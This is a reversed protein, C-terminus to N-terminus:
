RKWFEKLFRLADKTLTGNDLAQTPVAFEVKIGVNNIRRKDIILVLPSRNRSDISLIKINAEFIIEGQEKRGWGPSCVSFPNFFRTIFFRIHVTVIEAKKISYPFAIAM